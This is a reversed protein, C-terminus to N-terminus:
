EFVNRDRRIELLSTHFMIGIVLSGGASFLQQGGVTQREGDRMVKENNM